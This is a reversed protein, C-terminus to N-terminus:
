PKIGTVVALASPYLVAVDARVHCIFGIEGTTAFLEKAVQISMQERMMFVVKTFDGVYIESCNSSTGVTLNDPVASTSLMTLNQLMDPKRLPQGTTDVLGGLKVLSRPSMIAATPMPANAQLLEQAASFFNAYGALAAGNAGNAVAKINPTNLIGRPEPNTGSGRLGARDLEKAFAQAIAVTLAATMNTADALLERSAKFFFALSKPAAIVARFTPASESVNGSELRWAASPISDVAATTFNKAGESLPIIGAGATLLASAPVLAELIGPMVISPVAFGGSSDTGVSMAASVATTTKMGAVGRLFDDLQVAEGPTNSGAQPAKAYHSRIDEVSRLVKVGDGESNRWEPSAKQIAADTARIKGDLSGIEDLIVDLAAADSASMRQNAPAKANLARAEEVKADRQARLQALNSM